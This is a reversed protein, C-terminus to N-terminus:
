EDLWGSRRSHFVARDPQVEIVLITMDYIASSVHMSPTERARDARGNHGAEGHRQRSRGLDNTRADLIHDDRRVNIGEIQRELLELFIRRRLVELQNTVGIE